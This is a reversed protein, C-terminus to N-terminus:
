WWMVDDLNDAEDVPTTVTWVDTNLYKWGSDAFLVVVNGRRLRPLIKL